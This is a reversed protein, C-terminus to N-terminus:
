IMQNAFDILKRKEESYSDYFDRTRVLWKSLEDESIRENSILL